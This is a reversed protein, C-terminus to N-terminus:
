DIPQKLIEDLCTLFEKNEFPNIVKISNGKFITYNTKEDHYEFEYLELDALANLRIHHQDNRLGHEKSRSIIISFLAKGARLKKDYGRKQIGEVFKANMKTHEDQPDRHLNDKILQWSRIFELEYEKNM